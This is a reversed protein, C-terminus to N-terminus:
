KILDDFSKIMETEEERRKVADSGISKAKELVDTLEIQVQGSPKFSVVEDVEERNKCSEKAKDIFDSYDNFLGIYLFSVSKKDDDDDIYTCDFNGAYIRM